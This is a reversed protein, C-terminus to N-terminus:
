HAPRSLVCLVVRRVEVFEVSATMLYTLSCCSGRRWNYCGLCSRERVRSMRVCGGSDASGRKEQVVVVVLCHRLARVLRTKLEVLGAEGTAHVFLKDRTDRYSLLLWDISNDFSRVAEAASRIEPTDLSVSAMGQTPPSSSSPSPRLHSSLTPRPLFVLPRAGGKLSPTALKAASSPSPTDHILCDPFLM